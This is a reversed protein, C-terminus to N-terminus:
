DHLNLPNILFNCERHHFTPLVRGKRLQQREWHQWEEDKEADLPTEVAIEDEDTAVPTTKPIVHSSLMLIIFSSTM